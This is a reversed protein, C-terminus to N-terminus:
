YRLGLMMREYVRNQVAKQVSQLEGSELLDNLLGRLEAQLNLDASIGRYSQRAERMGERYAQTKTVDTLLCWIKGAQEALREFDGANQLQWTPFALYALTLTGVLVMSDKPDEDAPTRQLITRVIDDLSTAM